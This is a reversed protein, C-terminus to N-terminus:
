ADKKPAAAKCAEIGRQAAASRPDIKLAEEYEGIAQACNGQARRIAGRTTFFAASRIGNAVAADADAMAGEYDKMQARLGSRIALAPGNAPALKIAADLDALGGQLDGERRRFAGRQALANADRPNAAITEDLVALAKKTDLGAQRPDCGLSPTATFVQGGAHTFYVKNQSRAVYVRHSRLFDTGLFLDPAHGRARAFDTTYDQIRIRADRITQGGITVTDFTGVWNRLGGGGLGSSCSGPLVSPSDTSLGVSEAFALAVISSSAGSDLMARAERGNVRVNFHIKDGDEMPVVQANADWYGLFSKQCNEPQFLRIVGKAYDFEMDVVKFFDDGLILDTGRFAGEGAVKMRWNKRVADGIRVEELTTVFVRSQGGFGVMFEQTPRTPVDLREAAAKMLLTQSAGTDLMVGVPKGNIAGDIIPQNTGLKVTWEAIKALRCKAADQAWAPAAAVLLALLLHRM